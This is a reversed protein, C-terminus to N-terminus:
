RFRKKYITSGCSRQEIYNKQQFKEQYRKVNKIVIALSLKRRQRIIATSYANSEAMAM